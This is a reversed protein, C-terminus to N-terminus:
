NTLLLSCISFGEGKALFSNAQKEAENREKAPRTEGPLILVPRAGRRKLFDFVNRDASQELQYYNAFIMKAVPAFINSCDNRVQSKLDFHYHGVGSKCMSFNKILPKGVLSKKM